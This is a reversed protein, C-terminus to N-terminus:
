PNVGGVFVGANGIRIVWDRNNGTTSFTLDPPAIIYAFTSSVLSDGNNDKVMIAFGGTSTARDVNMITSLVSNSPSSQNLTLTLKANYNNNKYRTLSGDLDIDESFLDEDWTINVFTDRAFGTVIHSIGAAPATITVTLQNPDFIRPM